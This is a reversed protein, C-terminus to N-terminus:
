SDRQPRTFVWLQYANRLLLVAALIAVPWQEKLGASIGLMGALAAIATVLWVRWAPVNFKM